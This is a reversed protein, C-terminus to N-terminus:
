QLQMRWSAEEKTSLVEMRIKLTQFTSEEILRTDLGDVDWCENIIIFERTPDMESHVWVQNTFM